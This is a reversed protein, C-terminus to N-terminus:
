KKRRLLSGVLDLITGSKRGRSPAVKARLPGKQEGQTKQIQAPPGGIKGDNSPTKAIEPESRVPPTETSKPEPARIATPKQPASAAKPAYETRTKPLPLADDLLEDISLGFLRRLALLTEAEPYSLGKEWLYVAQRTVGVARALATQTLNDRARLAVMKERFTM